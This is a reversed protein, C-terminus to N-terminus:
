IAGSLVAIQQIKKSLTPIGYVVTNPSCGPLPPGVRPCLDVRAVFLVLDSTVETAKMSPTRPFAGPSLLKGESM